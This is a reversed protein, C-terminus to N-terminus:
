KLLPEWTRVEKIEKDSLGHASKLKLINEYKDSLLLLAKDYKLSTCLNELVQDLTKNMQNFGHAQAILHSTLKAEHHM